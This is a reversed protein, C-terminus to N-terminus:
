LSSFMTERTRTPPCTCWHKCSSGVNAHPGFYLLYVRFPATGIQVNKPKPVFLYMYRETGIQVHM